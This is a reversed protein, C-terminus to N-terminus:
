LSSKAASDQAQEKQKWLQSLIQIHGVHLATHELAWAVTYQRGDRPSQWQEGLVALDLAEFTEKVYAELENLRKKLVAADVRTIQFEADRNRNSPDGMIVDGIWYRQAGILHAVLVCLSNMDAGPKWDLAEPPLEDLSKEVEAHLVHLRDLLGEFLRHV